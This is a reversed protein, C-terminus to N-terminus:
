EIVDEEHEEDNAKEWVDEPLYKVHKGRLDYKFLFSWGLGNFVL